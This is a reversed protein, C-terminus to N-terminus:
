QERVVQKDEYGDRIGTVRYDVTVDRDAEITISSESRDTVAVTALEHPTAQVTMDPHSDSVTQSFHYPLEVTASGGSVNATGEIAARVQPSEQSTYYATKGNDLEHMWNKTGDCNWAGDTDIYCRHPGGDGGDIDARLNLYNPSNINLNGVTEDMYVKAPEDGNVDMTWDLNIREGSKLLVSSDISLNNNGNDISNAEDINNGGMDLNGDAILSGNIGSFRWIYPGGNDADFDPRVLVDNNSNFPLHKGPYVTSSVFDTYVGSTHLESDGTLNLDGGVMTTGGTPNLHGVATLNNGYFHANGPSKIKADSATNQATVASFASFAVLLALAGLLFYKGRKGSLRGDGM